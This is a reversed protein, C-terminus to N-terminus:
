LSLKEQQEIRNVLLDVFGQQSIHLFPVGMITVHRMYHEFRETIGNESCDIM